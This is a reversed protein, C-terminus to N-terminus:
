KIEKLRMKRKTLFPPSNYPIFLVSGTVNGSVSCMSMRKKNGLEM